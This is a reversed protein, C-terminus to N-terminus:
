LQSTLYRWFLHASCVWLRWVVLTPVISLALWERHPLLLVSWCSHSESLTSARGLSITLLLRALGPTILESSVRSLHDIVSVRKQLLLRVPIKGDGFEAGSQNVGFYTFKTRTAGCLTDTSGNSPATTTSTGGGPNSTTSPTGPLCQYYDIYLTLITWSLFCSGAWLREVRYLCFRICLHYWRELWYGLWWHPVHVLGPVRDFLLRVGCQAYLPQAGKVTPIFFVTAAILSTITYRMKFGLNQPQTTTNWGGKLDKSYASCQTTRQIGSYRGSWRQWMSLGKRGVYSVMAETTEICIESSIHWFNKVVNNRQDIGFPLDQINRPKELITPIKPIKCM